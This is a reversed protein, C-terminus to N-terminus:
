MTCSCGGTAPQSTRMPVCKIAMAGLGIRGFGMSGDIGLVPGQELKVRAGVDVAVM